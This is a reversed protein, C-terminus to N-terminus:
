CSWWRCATINLDIIINKDMKIQVCTTQHLRYQKTSKVNSPRRFITFGSLDCYICINFRGWVGRHVCIPTSNVVATKWLRTFRMVGAARELCNNQGAIGFRIEACKARPLFLFLNFVGPISYIIINYVEGLGRLDSCGVLERASHVRPDDNIM